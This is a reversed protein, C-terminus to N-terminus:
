VQVGKERAFVVSNLWVLETQTLKGEYAKEAWKYDGLLGKRYLGDLSDGLMKWQWQELQMTDDGKLKATGMIGHLEEWYALDMENLDV